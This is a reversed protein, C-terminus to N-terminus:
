RDPENQLSVITELDELSWKKKKKKYASPHSARRYSMCETNPVIRSGAASLIKIVVKAIVNVMFPSTGHAEGGKREKKEKETHQDKSSWTGSVTIM